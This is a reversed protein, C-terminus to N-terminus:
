NPLWRWIEIIECYSHSDEPYNECLDLQTNVAERYSSILGYPNLATYDISDFKAGCNTIVSICTSLDVLDYGCFEFQQRQELMYNPEIEPRMIVALLQEDKRPIETEPKEIEKLEMLGCDFTVLENAKIKGHNFKQLNIDNICRDSQFYRVLGFSMYIENIMTISMDFYRGAM